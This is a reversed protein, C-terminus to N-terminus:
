SNFLHASEAVKMRRTKEAVIKPGKFSNHQYKKSFQSKIDLVDYSM